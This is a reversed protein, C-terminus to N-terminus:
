ASVLAPIGTARGAQNAAQSGWTRQEFWETGAVPSSSSARCRHVRRDVRRPRRQVNPVRKLRLLGDFIEPVSSYAGEFAFLRSYIFQGKRIRYLKKASTRIGEIPAKEFLGRGFSYIGVNPYRNDIQVATEEAAETMVKGLKLLRWGGKRKEDDSLHDHNALAAYLANIREALRTKQQDLEHTALAVSDLHKAVRRQEDIDPLPIEISEFRERALTRNRTVSGPAAKEISPFGAPSLFYYRAWNTDILQSDRATYTLFRHTGVCHADRDRALGM